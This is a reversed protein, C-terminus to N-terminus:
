APFINTPANPSVAIVLRDIGSALLSFILFNLYTLVPTALFLTVLGRATEGAVLRNIAVTV